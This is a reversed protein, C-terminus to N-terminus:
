TTCKRSFEVVDAQHTSRKWYFLRSGSIAQLQSTATSTERSVYIGSLGGTMSDCFIELHRSTSPWMEHCTLTASPGVPERNPMLCRGICVAIHDDYRIHSPEEAPPVENQRIAGCCEEFSNSLLVNRYHTVKSHGHGLLVEWSDDIVDLLKPTHIAASDM